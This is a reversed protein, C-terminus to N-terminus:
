HEEVWAFFEEAMLMKLPTEHVRLETTMERTRLTRSHLDHSLAMIAYCVNTMDEDTLEEGDARAIAKMKAYVRARLERHTPIQRM